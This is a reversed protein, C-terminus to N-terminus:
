DDWTDKRAYCDKFFVTKMDACIDSLVHQYRCIQLLSLDALLILWGIYRSPEVELILM